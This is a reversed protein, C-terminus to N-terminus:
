KSTKEAVVYLGHPNIRSIAEKLDVRHAPNNTSHYLM